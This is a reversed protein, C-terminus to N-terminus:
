RGKCPPRRRTPPLGAPVLRLRAHDDLVTLPHCRGGDTLGFHGKFDMQWLDNPAPHEFRQWDRPQGARPGDLRGHRRLIATITSPAPVAAHGLALLRARLKRGGWPRIGTPCTWSWSSWTTPPAARAPGPGARDTPWRTPAAM